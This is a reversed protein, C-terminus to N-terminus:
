IMSLTAPSGLVPQWDFKADYLSNLYTPTATGQHRRASEWSEPSNPMDARPSPARRRMVYKSSSSETEGRAFREFIGSIGDEPLSFITDVGWDILREILMDAVTNAMAIEFSIILSSYQSNFSLRLFFDKM